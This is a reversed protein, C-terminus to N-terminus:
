RKSRRGRRRGRGARTRGRASAQLHVAEAVIRPVERAVREVMERRMAMSQALAQVAVARLWRLRDLAEARADPATLGPDRHLDGIM